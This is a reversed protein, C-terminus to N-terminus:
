EKKAHECVLEHIVGPTDEAKLVLQDGAFAYTRVLDTGIWDPYLSAEVHHIVTDGVVDYSGSYSLYTWAARMFRFIARTYKPKFALEDLSVELCPRNAAMLTAAMYGDQTYLIRGVAQAGFPFSVRSDQTMMVWSVLKWTGLFKEELM